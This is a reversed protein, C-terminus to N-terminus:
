PRSVTSQRPSRRSHAAGSVSKSTCAVVVGRTGCAAPAGSGECASRCSTIERSFSTSPRLWRPVSQVVIDACEGLVVALLAHQRARGEGDGLDERREAHELLVGRHAPLELTAGHDDDVAALHDAPWEGGHAGRLGCGSWVARARGPGIFARSPPRTRRGRGRSGGRGQGHGRRGKGRLTGAGQGPPGGQGGRGARLGLGGAQPAHATGNPLSALSPARTKEISTVPM